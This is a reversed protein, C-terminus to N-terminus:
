NAPSRRRVCRQDVCVDAGCESDDSCRIDMLVFDDDQRPPVPTDKRRAPHRGNQPATSREVPLECRSEPKDFACSVQAHAFAKDRVAVNVQSGLPRELRLPTVMPLGDVEVAVGHRPSGRHTTVVILDASQIAQANADMASNVTASPAQHRQPTSPPKDQLAAMPPRKNSPARKFQVAGLVAVAAVVLTLYLVPKAWSRTEALGSETTIAMNPTAPAGTGETPPVHRASAPQTGGAEGLRAVFASLSEFREAPRVSLARHFVADLAPGCESRAPRWSAVPAIGGSRVNMSLEVDAPDEIPVGDAPEGPLHGTLLQYVTAAFAWQDSEKTAARAGQVLEPAEYDATGMHLGTQTLDSADTRAIGFDILKARGDQTVLINEPKLDRHVVGALHAQDLASAVEGLLDMLAPWSLRAASEDLTQAGEVLEMVFYPHRHIRDKDRITVIASIKQSLEMLIQAERDFREEQEPLFEDSIPVLIKLAAEGGNRLDAVRYVAGMGGANILGLVEYNKVLFRPPLNRPDVRDIAELADLFAGATAFREEPDEAMAKAVVDAFAGPVRRIRGARVDDLRAPLERHPTNYYSFAERASGLSVVREGTIMEYAILGLAYVDLRPSAKGVGARFCEPAMYAPTGPTESDGTLTAEVDHVARAVGLDLITATPWPEGPDNALFVNSPKLDRHIIGKDHVVRMGRLLDGLYRRAEEYSLGGTRRLRAALPEGELFPMVLFMRGEHEQADRIEVFFRSRPLHAMLQKERHFRALLAPSDGCRAAMAKIAVVTGTREDHAEYVDGMGGSAVWRKVVYRDGIRTGSALRATEAPRAAVISETPERGPAPRDFESDTLPPGAGPVDSAGTPWGDGGGDSTSSEEASRDDRSVM